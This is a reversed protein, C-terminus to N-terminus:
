VVIRGEDDFVEVEASGCGEAVAVGGPLSSNNINLFIVNGSDLCDNNVTVETVCIPESALDFDM